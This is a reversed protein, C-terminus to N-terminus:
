RYQQKEIACYESSAPLPNRDFLRDVVAGFFMPAWLVTIGIFGADGPTVKCRTYTDLWNGFAFSSGLSLYLFLWGIKM